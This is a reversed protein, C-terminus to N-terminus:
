GDIEPFVDAGLQRLLTRSDYYFREGAMLGDRFGIVVAIRFDIPQRTPAIGYFDGVHRGTYRAEPILTGDEAWFRQVSEVKLEFAEWWLRYYARAGDIGHYRQGLALDEFVCEPHLTALTGEMDHRNEATLHRNVLRANERSM